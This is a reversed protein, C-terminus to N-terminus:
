AQRRRIVLMAVLASALLLAPAPLPVPAPPIHTAALYRFQIDVSSVLSVIEIHLSEVRTFDIADFDGFRFVLDEGPLGAIGSLTSLSRSQTSDHDRVTLTLLADADADGFVQNVVIANNAGSESLDLSGLGIGGADYGLMATGTTAVATNFSMCHQSGGSGACSSTALSAKLAPVNLAILGTKEVQMHRTGGLITGGTATVSLTQGGDFLTGDSVSGPDVFDDIVMAAHANGLALLMGLGTLAPRLWARGLPIRSCAFASM